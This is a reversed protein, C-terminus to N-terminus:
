RPRVHTRRELSDTPRPLICLAVFHGDLERYAVDIGRAWPKGRDTALAGRPVVTMSCTTPELQVVEIELPHARVAGLAKAFAVKATWLARRWAGEDHASANIARAILARESVSFADEAPRAALPEPLIPEVDIGAGQIQDLAFAAAYAQFGQHALTVGYQADQPWAVRPAGTPTRLVPIDPLLRREGSLLRVAEKAVVRGLIFSAAQLPPCPITLSCRVPEGMLGLPHVRRDVFSWFRSVPPQQELLELGQTAPGRNAVEAAVM